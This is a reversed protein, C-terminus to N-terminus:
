DAVVLKARTRGEPTEVMLFYAGAKLGQRDFRVSHRGADFAADVAQLARRGSGDYLAMKVRGPKSLGFRVEARDRVPSPRVLVRSVPRPEPREEVAQGAGQGIHYVYKTVNRGYPGQEFVIHTNNESDVCIKPGGVRVPDNHIVTDDVVTLESDPLPQGGNDADGRLVTYYLNRATQSGDIYAVRLDGATDVAWNPCWRESGDAFVSPAVAVSGDPNLKLYRLQVGSTWTRYLIHVCTDPTAAVRVHSMVRQSALTDWEWTLGKDTSVGYVLHEIDDAFTCHLRGAPDRALSARGSWPNGTFIANRWTILGGGPGLRTFYIVDGYSNVTSVCNSDDTVGADMHYWSATAFSVLPQGIYVNTGAADTVIPQYEPGSWPRVVRVTDGEANLVYLDHEADSQSYNYRGVACYVTDFQDVGVRVNLWWYDWNPYTGVLKPETWFGEGAALAVGLAVGLLVFRRM